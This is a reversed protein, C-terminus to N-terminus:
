FEGLKEQNLWYVKKKKGISAQDIEFYANQIMWIREDTVLNTM